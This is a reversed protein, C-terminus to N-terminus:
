PMAFVAADWKDVFKVARITIDMLVTGHQHCTIHTPVMGGDVDKYEALFCAATLGPTALWTQVTKVPL